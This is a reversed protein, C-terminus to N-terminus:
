HFALFQWISYIPLNFHKAVPKSADKDNREIDHLHERFRDDLWRCEYSQVYLHHMIYLVVYCTANIITACSESPTNKYAQNKPNQKKWYLRFELNRNNASENNKIGEKSESGLLSFDKM